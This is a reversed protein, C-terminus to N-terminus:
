IVSFYVVDVWVGVIMECPQGYLLIRVIYNLWLCGGVNKMTIIFLFCGWIGCFVKKKEAYVHPLQEWVLSMWLPSVVLPYLGKLLIKWWGQSLPLIYVTSCVNPLIINMMPLVDNWTKHAELVKKKEKKKVTLLRNVVWSKKEEEIRKQFFDRVHIKLVLFFDKLEM